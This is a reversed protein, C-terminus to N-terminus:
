ATSPASLASSRGSAQRRYSMVRVDADVYIDASLAYDYNAPYIWHHRILAVVREHLELLRHYTSDLNRVAHSSTGYPNAAHLLNSLFGYAPGWEPETLYGDTVDQLRGSADLVPKVPKPWYNPNVRQALARADRPGKKHLATAVAGIDSRNSVLSSLVILELAIRLQVAICEANPQTRPMSRLTLGALQTRMRLERLLSAYREIDEQEFYRDREGSELQSIQGPVSRSRIWVRRNASCKQLPRDVTPLPPVPHARMWPM